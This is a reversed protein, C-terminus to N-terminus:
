GILVIMAGLKVGKMPTSSGRTNIAKHKIPANFQTPNMGRETEDPLNPPFKNVL